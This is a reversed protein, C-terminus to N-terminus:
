LYIICKIFLCMEQVTGTLSDPPLLASSPRSSTCNLLVHPVTHSSLKSLASALTKQVMSFLPHTGTDPVSESLLCTNRSPSCMINNEQLNGHLTYMDVSCVLIAGDHYVQM